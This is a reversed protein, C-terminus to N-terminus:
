NPPKMEREFAYLQSMFSQNPDACPRLEQVRRLAELVGLGGSFMLYAMVLAVSRSVGRTCHVLVRGNSQVVRHILQAVPGLHQSITETETDWCHM